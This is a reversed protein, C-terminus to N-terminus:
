NGNPRLSKAAPPIKNNKKYQDEINKVAAIMEWRAKETAKRFMKLFADERETLTSEAHKEVLSIAYDLDTIFAMYILLDEKSTPADIWKNILNICKEKREKLGEVIDRNM